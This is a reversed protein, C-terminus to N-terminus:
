KPKTDEPTTPTPTEGGKDGGKDEPSSRRTPAEDFYLDQQGRDRPFLQRIAGMNSDYAKVFRERAGFGVDHGLGSRSRSKADTVELGVGM